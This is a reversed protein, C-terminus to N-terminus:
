PSVAEAPRPRWDWLRVHPVVPPDGARYIVIASEFRPTGAPEGQWLFRIRGPLFRIEHACPWVWSQWYVSGTAAPLLMVVRAGAQAEKAAHEVWPAPNSYPPNVWVTEGAWPHALGDDAATWYRPCKANTPSAAADVTFLFERALAEFLDPPTAWEDSLRNTTM